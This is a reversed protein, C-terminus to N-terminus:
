PTQAFQKVMNGSTATRGDGTAPKLFSRLFNQVNKYRDLRLKDIKRSIRLALDHTYGTECIWSGYQKTITFSQMNADTTEAIFDHENVRSVKYTVPINLSYATIEFLFKM